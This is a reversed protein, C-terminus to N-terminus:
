NLPKTKKMKFIVVGVALLVPAILVSGEPGVSSGSLWAPGIPRSAVLAGTASIGSNSVGFLFTEGWDWAFHFGIAWWITGFRWISLACILGFLTVGALGMATEGDNHLHYTMFWISTLAAAWWVNLGRLLTWFVFGRFLIEEAVAVLLYAFAWRAGWALLDIGTFASRGIVLGGALRLVAVVLALSGFGLFLGQFFRAAGGRLSFGFAMWGERDFIVMAGTALVFPLAGWFSWAGIREPPGLNMENILTQIGHDVGPQYAPVVLTIGFLLLSIAVAIGLFALIKWGARLGDKGVFLWRVRSVRGAIKNM